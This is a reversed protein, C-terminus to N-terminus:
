QSLDLSFIFLFIQIVCYYSYYYYFFFRKKRKRDNGEKLIITRRELTFARYDLSQFCLVKLFGELILQNKLESLYHCNGYISLKFILVKLVIIKLLPSSLIKSVVSM